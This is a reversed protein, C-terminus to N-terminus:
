VTEGGIWFLKSSISAKVFELWFSLLDGKIVLPFVLGSLLLSSLLLLSHLDVLLLNEGSPNKFDLFRCAENFGEFGVLGTELLNEDNNLLAGNRKVV